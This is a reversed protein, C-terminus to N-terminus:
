KQRAFLDVYKNLARERSYLGTALRRAAHGQRQCLSPDNAYTTVARQLGEIDGFEIVTGVNEEIIMLAIEDNLRGEYIIPRAAALIGYSKSPVALSSCSARLSVFHVDGAALIESIPFQQHLFPSLYVNALNREAMYAEIDSRRAGEGILVFSVDPQTETMKGAADILHEPRQPRGLNGAYMVVFGTGWKQQTRFKNKCHPTPVITREDAWNPIYTLRSDDIGKEILRPIMCRGTAVVADANRLSHSSIWALARTKSSGSDLFGLAVLFEPYMDMIVCCYPEKRLRLLLYGWFQFLPPHSLFLNLRSRGDLLSLCSAGIVYNLMILIKSFKGHHRLGFSSIKCIEVGELGTLADEIGSGQRYDAGSIYLKVQHKRSALYPILNRLFPAATDTLNFIRIKM